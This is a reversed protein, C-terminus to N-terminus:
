SAALCPRPPRIFVSASSGPLIGDGGVADCRALDGRGHGALFVLIRMLHVPRSYRKPTRPIGPFDGRYDREEGGCLRRVDCPRAPRDIAPHQLHSRLSSGAQGTSVPPRNSSAPPSSSPAVAYRLRLFEGALEAHVRGKSRRGEVMRCTGQM